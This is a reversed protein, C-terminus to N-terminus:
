NLVPFFFFFFFTNSKSQISFFGAFSDMQKTQCHFLRKQFMFMIFPEFNIYSSKFSNAALLISAYCCANRHLFLFEIRRPPLCRLVAEQQLAQAGAGSHDTATLGEWPQCWPCVCGRNTKKPLLRSGNRNERGRRM